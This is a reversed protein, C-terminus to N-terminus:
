QFHITYLSVKNGNEDDNFMRARDLAEPRTLQITLFVVRSSVYPLSSDLRRHYNNVFDLLLRTQRTVTLPLPIM